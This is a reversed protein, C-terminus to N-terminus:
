VSSAMKLHKGIRYHNATQYILSTSNNYTSNVSGATTDPLPSSVAYVRENLLETISQYLVRTIM